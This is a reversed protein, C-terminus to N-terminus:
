AASWLFVDCFGNSKSAARLIGVNRLVFGMESGVCMSWVLALIHTKAVNVAGFSSRWGVTCLGKVRNEQLFVYGHQAM